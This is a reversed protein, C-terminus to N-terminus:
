PALWNGEWGDGWEFRARRHGKGPRLRLWEVRVVRVLVLAFNQFGTDPDAPAIAEPTPDASGPAGIIQGPAFVTRYPMRLPPYLGEWAARALTDGAHTAAQGWLRIQLERPRDQTVLAVSTDATIEAVKASRRDTQFGVQRQGADGHRLIVTRLQPWGHPGTTALQAHRFPSDRDTAARELERWAFAIVADLDDEPIQDATM